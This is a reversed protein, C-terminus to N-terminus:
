KVLNLINISQEILSHKEDNLILFDSKIQLCSNNSQSLIRKRADEETIKDREIIRRLLLHEPSEVFIVFDIFEDIKAEYLLASEIIVLNTEQKEKWKIFDTLVVPHVISNVHKRHVESNFIKDSLFSKNIKNDFYVGEGFYSILCERINADTNMLMGARKDANYVPIEFIEFIKCVLSKGSGIIGTIGISIM